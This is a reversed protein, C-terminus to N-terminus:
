NEDIVLPFFAGCVCVCMNDRKNQKFLTGNCMKLPNCVQLISYLGHSNHPLCSLIEVVFCQLLIPMTHLRDAVIWIYLYLALTTVNKQQQQENATTKM